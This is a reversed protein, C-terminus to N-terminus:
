SSVFCNMYIQTFFDIGFLIVQVLNKTSKRECTFCLFALFLVSFAACYIANKLPNIVNTQRCFNSKGSLVSLLLPIDAIRSCYSTMLQYAVLMIIFLFIDIFWCIKWQFSPQEFNYASLISLFIQLQDGQYLFSQKLLNIKQFKNSM